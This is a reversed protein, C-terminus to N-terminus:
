GGPLPHGQLRGRAPFELAHGNAGGLYHPYHWGLSRAPLAASPDHLLLALSRGDVAPAEGGVLTLLTPLVDIGSVAHAVRGIRVGAGAIILPVRTGGEYAYGKGERLPANSTADDPPARDLGGNDSTFVVITDDALGLADLEAMVRGVSRDLARLMAAYTRNDQRGDPTWDAVAALDDARAQFPAHVAYHALTLLFPQGDRNHAQARLWGIGEDTLRDTLYEGSAGARAALDPVRREDGAAGYPWFYSAPHGMHGAALSWDFGHDAPLSGEGGLHWKGIYASRYGLPALAEALTVEAAPLRMTWEPVRFASPEKPTGEGPIWDTLHLRAPAKGTLLAARSPSCVAAAAYAQDFRVGRAALADLHPTQYFTSDAGSWDRWGMDDAVILLINPPKASPTPVAVEAIARQGPTQACGILAALGAALAFPRCYRRGSTRAGRDQSGTGTDSRCPARRGYKKNCAHM